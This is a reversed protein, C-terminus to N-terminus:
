LPVFHCINTFFSHKSLASQLSAVFKLENVFFFFVFSCNQEVWENAFTREFLTVVLLVLCLKMNKEHCM